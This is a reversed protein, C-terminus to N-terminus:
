RQALLAALRPRIEGVAAEGKVSGDIQKGSARGDAGPLAFLPIMRSTYGAATLRAEDKDHDFELLRLTPFAEDLQGAAAAEHFRTCPECWPAGVYVVLDRGDARARESEARVLAAVDDGGPAARVEVRRAAAGAGKPEAVAAPADSKNSADCGPGHGALVGLCACVWMGRTASSM